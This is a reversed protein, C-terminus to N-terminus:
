SRIWRPLNIEPSSFICTLSPSSVLKTEARSGQTATHNNAFHQVERLGLYCRPFFILFLLKAHTTRPIRLTGELIVFAIIISFNVLTLLTISKRRCTVVPNFFIATWLGGQKPTYSPKCHTKSALLNANCQVEQFNSDPSLPLSVSEGRGRQPQSLYGLGWLFLPAASAAPFHGLSEKLCIRTFFLTGNRQYLLFM